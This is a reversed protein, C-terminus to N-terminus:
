PTFLLNNEVPDFLRGNPLLLYDPGPRKFLTCRMLRDATVLVGLFPGQRDVADRGFASCSPSFGCRDGDTPSIYKQFGSVAGLFFIRMVSTEPDRGEVTRFRKVDPGRMKEPSALVASGSSVLLFFLVPLAALFPKVFLVSAGSDRLQSM